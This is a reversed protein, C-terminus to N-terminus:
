QNVICESITKIDDPKPQNKQASVCDNITSTEEVSTPLITGGSGDETLVTERIGFTRSRSEFSVSLLSRCDAIGSESFFEVSQPVIIEILATASFAKREIRSL